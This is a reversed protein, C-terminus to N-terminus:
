HIRDEVEVSYEASEREAKSDARTTRQTKKAQPTKNEETEKQLNKQNKEIQFRVKQDLAGWKGENPTHHSSDSLKWYPCTRKLEDICRETIFKKNNARLPTDAYCAIVDKVIKLM